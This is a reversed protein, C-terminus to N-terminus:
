KNTTLTEIHFGKFRKPNSSLFSEADEISVFKMALDEEKTMYISIKDVSRIFGNDNKITYM